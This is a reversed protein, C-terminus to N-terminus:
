EDDNGPHPDQALQDAMPRNPEPADAQRQWTAMIERGVEAIIERFRRASYVLAGTGSALMQEAQDSTVVKVPHERALEMARREIWRDATEQERTFVVTVGATEQRSGTGSPVKWADFVLEVAEGTFGQYNLLVETLKDRAGDFSVKALEALEPWAHIVNYGDVLLYVPERLVRGASRVPESPQTVRRKKWQKKENANAYFTQQLIRDIEDPGITRTPGPSHGAVRTQTQEGGIRIPELHAMAPVQDWPVFFGAGNACFVSGAPNAPDSLPDYGAQAIVEAENHCPEYGGFEFNLRAEGRSLVMIERGYGRLTAVPGKGTVTMAEGQTRTAIASAGLRDLDNLIRGVIDTGVTIEFEYVPELLQCVGKARAELLGQRLARSAAERLDGGQTHRPHDRLGALSIELHSLSAGTLVGTLDAQRLYSIVQHQRAAAAGKGDLLSRIRIGPTPSPELILQVEAYHRLPEFHGTGVVGERITERYVIGGEDVAISMGGRELIQEHLVELMMEGMLRVELLGDETQGVHLEPMEEELERLLGALRAEDGGQVLRIRYRLVPFIVPARESGRGISQGARSNKLGVLACVEGAQASQVQVYDAGSYLRIENIKEEEILSKNQLSGGTVRLWTLRQGQEDRSIKFVQGSFDEGYVPEETWRVLGALFDAVGVDKLASGTWCPFVTRSMVARRLATESIGGTRLFEELLEESLTATDESRLLDERTFDLIHDSLERQLQRRVAAPDVGAQDTKNIFVFVPVAYATLLKWLRRTQATVGDAGNIVLICADLIGLTRETEPTFDAHGPTDLLLLPEGAWALRAMKAFITIGRRREMAGTDLFADGHDVRGTRRLAGGHFLLAEALTTKGSDVSALIGIVKQKRQRDM